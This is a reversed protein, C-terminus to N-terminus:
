SPRNGGSSSRIDSRSYFVSADRLAKRVSGTKRGIVLAHSQNDDEPDGVVRQGHNYAVTSGFSAVGVSPGADLTLRMDNRLRAMDVSMEYNTFAGTSIRNDVYHDPHVRRWLNEGRGVPYSAM